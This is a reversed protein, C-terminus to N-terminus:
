KQHKQLNLQKRFKKKLCLKATLTYFHLQKKAHQNQIRIKFSFSKLKEVKVLINATPKYYSVKIININM